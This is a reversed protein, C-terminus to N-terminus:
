GRNMSSPSTTATLPLVSDATLFQKGSAQMYRSKTYITDMFSQIGAASRMSVDHESSDGGCIIAVVKKLECNM